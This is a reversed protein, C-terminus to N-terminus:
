QNGIDHSIMDNIFFKIFDEHDEDEFNFTDPNAEFSEVVHKHTNRLHEHIESQIDGLARSKSNYTCYYCKIDQDDNNYNDSVKKYNHTASSCPHNELKESSAEFFECNDCKKFIKELHQFQCLNKSCKDRFYCNPASEHKFMCGIDSYPCRKNNNFYHCFKLNKAEETHMTKHKELRWKLVFTLDCNECHFKEIEEHESKIHAELENNKSFIKTCIKCKITTSHSKTVHSNLDFESDFTKKCKKCKKVYHTPKTISKDNRKIDELAYELYELKKKLIEM